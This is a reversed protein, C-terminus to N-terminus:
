FIIIILFKTSEIEGRTTPMFCILENQLLLQFVLYHLIM